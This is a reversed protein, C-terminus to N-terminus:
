FVFLFVLDNVNTHTPGTVIQDGLAKFFSASDNEALYDKLKLGMALARQMTEGTVVAGAGDSVGDGGDTALTVLVADELSDLGEVAALALEQNRGGRGSGQLTVTTEGGAILVGPRDFPDSLLAMRRLVGALEAGVERAEGELETTLLEANLGLAQAKRLAAKAAQKNSGVLLNSVRDFEAEAIMKEEARWRDFVSEPIFGLLDYRDLIAIAEASTEPNPVTPGSAIMGLPNGVVDSLILSVVQAPFAAQALGGGKVVDLQKRLTNIEEIDAGSALLADTLERLDDLSFGEVPATLLASGGGSIVCLVLDKGGAGSVLDLLERTAQVGRQDPLPHGAERIQVRGLRDTGGYGEKVIVVGGFIREGLLDVVAEAMPLGAKGAGVLYIKEIESLNIQQTGWLLMEGGVRVHAHVADFPDVADLAAAMIETVQEGWSVTTLSHTLFQEPQM